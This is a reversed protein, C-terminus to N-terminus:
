AIWYLTTQEQERMFHFRHIYTPRHNLTASFITAPGIQKWGGGPMCIDPRHFFVKGNSPSPNWFFHYATSTSGSASPPTIYVGQDYRLINRVEDPPPHFGTESAWSSESLFPEQPSPDANKWIFWAHPLLFAVFTTMSLVITARSPPPIFEAAKKWLSDRPDKSSAPQTPFKSGIWFIIVTMGIMTVLGVPDHWRDLAERGGDNVLVSLTLTRVLNLGFAGLLSLALLILRYKVILRFHEGVALGVMLSAQLSRLGSCAEDVGILGNALEVIRGQAHAFIGLLLLIEATLAAIWISFQRIISLEIFTPWPIALSLFPDPIGSAATGTSGSPSLVSFSHIRGRHLFYGLPPSALFFPHPPRTGSFCGSRSPCGALIVVAVM